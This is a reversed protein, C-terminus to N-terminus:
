EGSETEDMKGLAELIQELKFETFKLGEERQVEEVVEELFQKVESPVVRVLAWVGTSGDYKYQMHEFEIDSYSQELIDKVAAERAMEMAAFPGSAKGYGVGYYADEAYPPNDAFDPVGSKESKKESPAAQVAQEERQEGVETPTVFEAFAAESEEESAEVLFDKKLEMLVWVGGESNFVYELPKASFFSLQRMADFVARKEAEEEAEAQDANAAYGIGFIVDEAVPPTKVFDPVNDPSNVSVCSFSAFVSFVLLFTLIYKRM